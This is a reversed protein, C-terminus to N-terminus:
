VDNQTPVDHRIIIIYTDIENLAKQKFMMGPLVTM